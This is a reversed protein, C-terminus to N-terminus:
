MGGPPAASDGDLERKPLVVEVITGGDSIMRLEGGIQQALGRMLTTGLGSAEEGAEQDLGVGDDRVFVTAMEGEVTMGITITGTQGNPFAYKFANTLAETVILGLPIAVDPAVSLHPLEVQIRVSRAQESTDAAALQSALDEVFAKFDLAEWQEREYLHRHLLSLTRVRNQAESFIRRIRTSRLNQAQLSLLSSIMQLNNKVRHHIERLMLERQELLSKLNIERQEIREAMATLSDALLDLERSGSRAKLRFGYEGRRYARAAQQVPRLPRICLREAGFWVAGLTLLMFLLVVGLQMWLNRESSAHLSEIAVAAVTTLEQDVLPAVSYLYRKGDRGTAEFMSESGRVAQNLRDGPPLISVKDFAGAVVANAPDLLFLIVRDAWPGSARLAGFWSLPIGAAVVGATEGGNRVAAAVPIVPIRSMRGLSYSGVSFDTGKLSDRFWDRDDYTAGPRQEATGSCALRGRHDVIMLDVYQGPFRNLVRKLMDECERVDDPGAGQTSARIAVGTDALTKLMSSTGELIERHRAGALMATAHVANRVAELEDRYVELARLGGFVAAPIM